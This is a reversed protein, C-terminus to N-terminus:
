HRVGRRFRGPHAIGKQGRGGGEVFRQFHELGAVVADLGLQARQLPQEGVQRPVTRVFLRPPFANMPLGLGRRMLDAIGTALLALGVVAAAVGLGPAPPVPLPVVPELHHAWAALALPVGVVFLLGYLVRGVVGAATVM